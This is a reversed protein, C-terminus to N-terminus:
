VTWNLNQWTAKHYSFFPGGYCKAEVGAHLPTNSGQWIDSISSNAFITLLKFDNVIKALVKIGCTQCPEWYAEAAHFTIGM